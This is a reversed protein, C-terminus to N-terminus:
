LRNATAISSFARSSSYRLRAVELEEIATIQGALYALIRQKTHKIRMIAGGYRIDHVEWAFPKHYEMWMAAHSDRLATLKTEIVDCEAALAALADSDGADYAAKLRVGFDAKNELLSSLKKTMDFCLSLERSDRGVDALASSISRYHAGLDFGEVNKDILGVLPDNFVLPWTGGYGCGAPLHEPMELKAFDDYSQDCSFRFCERVKEADHGGNYDYSAYFALGALSTIMIGNGGGSEWITAFIEKVGAKRCAELAPLSKLELYSAILCYTNWTWIGGAFITDEGLLRHKELNEAYFEEYTRYYNWFVQQVGEPVYQKIDPSLEVRLDYDTYKDIGGAAMRFFMDSWMMPKFGYKECLKAVRGLHEFYLDQRERYGNVDLSKGTGLDHTEDMGIHLRKTTFCESISKLMDEILVYTEDAGVLLANQTDTYAAAANWKLHTALHGLMQVCPILEIGLTLAYRDLERLEEKTYRGRMYGFYPHNDIEYTDETYLMFTNLGMLAQKRLMYKVYKVNMVANRSVDIMGGNMTFTPRETVARAKVGDRLWMVLMALGRFFRVKGGGYTISADKGDLAVTVIHEDVESVRVTVDAGCECSLEVGLDEALIALGEELANANKICLKM